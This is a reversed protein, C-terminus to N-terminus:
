NGFDVTQAAIKAGDIYIEFTVQGVGSVVHSFDPNAQPNQVGDYIVSGNSTIKVNVQEKDSPLTVYLTKQKPEAVPKNTGSTTTEPTTTGTAANGSNTAPANGTSANADTNGDEPAGEGNSLTINIVTKADVSSGSEVSQGIVTDKAKSSTAYDFSGVVLNEQEIRRKAEDKTMGVLAPVTIKENEVGDSVYLTVTDGEILSEGASPNQSIVHDVAVSDNYSREIIVQLGLSELESEATAYEKNVYNKLTITDSAIAVTVEISQSGKVRRGARPYQEIITGDEYESTKVSEKVIITFETDAVEAEAEEVTMNLLNPVKTEQNSFSFSLGSLFGFPEFDTFIMSAAFTSLLAVIIVSTILASIITKKDSDSIKIPKGTTTNKKTNTTTKSRSETKDKKINMDVESDIKVPHIKRTVENLYDDYTKTSIAVSNPDSLVINLEEDMENVSSYRGSVEKCMAKLVIASVNEPIGDIIECPNVPPQEIQKMAVAVPTDGDFPVKGTLMEYMVVGLSYIDSREDVYGGRAQEPSLYHVSGLVDGDVSITSGSTVRAIGFDTVKIDGDDTVMINQPKIDRHIIHKKHAESLADAIGMAIKVTQQWPVPNNYKIYEKLTKGEVFEMVIYNIDGDKGVDYISVIHQNTLSAASQAEINFRKLFEESSDLDDRLIKVAVTRNLLLCKARYVVAMGGTGIKELLEYRGGLIKGVMRGGRIM